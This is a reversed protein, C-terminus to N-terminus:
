LQCVPLCGPAKIPQYSKQEHYQIILLLGWAIFQLKFFRLKKQKKRVFLIYALSSM